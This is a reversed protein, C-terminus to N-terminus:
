RENTRVKRHVWWVVAAMAGDAVGSLPVAWPVPELVAELLLFILAISKASIIVTVGRYKFYEVLYATALAVHFAGAQHAFFLPEIVTWGGFRILLNPILFFSAGIILSHVAVLVILLTEHKETLRM